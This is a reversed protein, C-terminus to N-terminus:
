SKSGSDSEPAEPDRNKRRKSKYVHDHNISEVAGPIPTHVEVKVTATAKVRTIHHSQPVSSVSPPPREGRSEDDSSSISGHNTPITTTEVVVEPEVVIEHSSYQSPEETITTLSVDSPIRPYFHRGSGRSRSVSSSKKKVPKPSPEPSPTPIRDEDNKPRIEAKPGFLSLLIPLLLLGNLLGIVILASLVNFFYKVVFQFEAGALMVIGLLTSIAGHVVPAFMHDLSM